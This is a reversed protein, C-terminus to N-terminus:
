RELTQNRSWTRDLLLSSGSGKQGQCGGWVAVSNEMITVLLTSEFQFSEDKEELDAAPTRARDSTLLMATPVIASGVFVGIGALVGTGAEVGREDDGAGGCGAGLRAGFADASVSRERVVALGLRGTTSWMPSGILYLGPVYASNLLANSTIRGLAASRSRPSNMRANFSRRQPSKLAMKRGKQPLPPSIPWHSTSSILRSGSETFTNALAPAPNSQASM